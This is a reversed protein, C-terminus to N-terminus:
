CATTDFRSAGVPRCLTHHVVVKNLIRRLRCITAPHLAFQHHPVCACCVSLRGQLQPEQWVHSPKLQIDLLLTSTSLRHEHPLQANHWALWDSPTDTLRALANTM